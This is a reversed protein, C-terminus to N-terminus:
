RAHQYVQGHVYLLHTRLLGRKMEKDCKECRIRTHQLETFSPKNSDISQAYTENSRRTHLYSGCSIMGKTKMANAILGLTGFNAIAENTLIQVWEPDTGGIYGDDTYFVGISRLEHAESQIM